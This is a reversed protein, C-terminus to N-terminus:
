LAQGVVMIAWCVWLIPRYDGLASILVGAITSIFGTGLSYTLMKLGAMTASAGLSQYYLPLYFSVCIFIMSQLFSSLLILGTSWTKFLRPPIVPSRKTHSEIFLAFGLLAVGISLFSITSRSGWDTQASNLGVLIMTVSSIIVGLGVFDFTSIQEEFSKKPTPNLNLFIVLITAACGGLPLNILFAWRWSVLDTLAGGLLPGIVAAIGWTAGFTGAYKGRQELTTIDAIVTQVLQLIGGGGLGQVGRSIILWTLNQAAGCLGSGLLFVAMSALLVPKRGVIDSLRGYM